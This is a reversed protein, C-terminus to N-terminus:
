EGGGSAPLRALMATARNIEDREPAATSRSRIAAAAHERGSYYGSKFDSDTAYRAYKAATGACAEREAAVAEEVAKDLDAPSVWRRGTEHNCAAECVTTAAALEEKLAGAMASYHEVDAQAEALKALAADREAQCSALAVDLAVWADKEADRENTATKLTIGTLVNGVEAKDAREIAADREGMLRSITLGADTCSGRLNDAEAKLAACKAAWGGPPTCTGGVVCLEFPPDAVMQGAKAVPNGCGPCTPRNDSMESGESM